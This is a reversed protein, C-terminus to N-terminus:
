IWRRVQALYRRYDDGFKAALYREERRIVGYHVVVLTPPLLALALLSDVALAAGIYILTMGVYMPNRTIRYVGNTVIATTPHWPEPSTGARWFLGLAGAAFVVAVAILVGAAGYRLDADIGTSLGIVYRDLLFGAVLPLGFILPPPALVGATDRKRGRRSARRDGESKVSADDM